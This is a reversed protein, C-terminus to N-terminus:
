KAVRLSSHLFDGNSVILAIEHCDSAELETAQQSFCLGWLDATGPSMQYVVWTVRLLGSARRPWPGM